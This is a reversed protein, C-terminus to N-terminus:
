SNRHEPLEAISALQPVAAWTGASHVQPRPVGHVCRRPPPIIPFNVIFLEIWAVSRSGPHRTRLLDSHRGKVLEELAM